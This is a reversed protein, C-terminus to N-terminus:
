RTPSGHAASAAPKLPIYRLLLGLLICGGGLYTVLDPRDGWALFIWLPLLMPELLGIV